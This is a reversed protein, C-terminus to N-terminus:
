ISSNFAAVSVQRASPELAEAVVKQLARGSHLRALDALSMMRLDPVESVLVDTSDM